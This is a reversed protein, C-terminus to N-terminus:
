ADAGLRPSAKIKAIARALRIFDGTALTEARASPAIAAAALLAEVQGASADLGHVLANRLTKRRACFASRITERVIDEEDDAFTRAVPEFVLVEAEVRPKPHFSGAAVRFHGAIKWYLASYASLAAYATTAPRARIREAVERQFMLVMREILGRQDCLKHLIAAAANFPLNGVVTIPPAGALQPLACTLFDEAVVSVHDDGAFRTQLTAALRRDLEVLILRRIPRAAIRESLIGLGPGIEVVASNTGLAAADIIREAVQAQVLFNQGRGKSPCVGADALAAAAARTTM